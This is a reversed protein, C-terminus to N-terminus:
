FLDSLKKSSVDGLTGNAEAIRQAITRPKEGAERRALFVHQHERFNEVALDAAKQMDYDTAWGHVYAELAPDESLLFVTWAGNWSRYHLSGLRLDDPLQLSVTKM